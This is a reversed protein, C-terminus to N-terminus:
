GTRWNWNDNKYVMSLINKNTDSVNVTITDMTGDLFIGAAEATKVSLNSNRMDYGLQLQVAGLQAQVTNISCISGQQRTLGHLIDASSNRMDYGTVFVYQKTGECLDIGIFYGYKDLYVNYTNNALLDKDYTDLTEADYIARDSDKYKTGDTTLETPYVAAALLFMRLM